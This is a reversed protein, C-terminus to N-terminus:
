RNTKIVRRTVSGFVFEAQYAACLSIAALSVKNSEANGPHQCRASIRYDSTYIVM